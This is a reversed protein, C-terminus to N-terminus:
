GPLRRRASPPLRRASVTAAGRQGRPRGPRAAGAPAPAQDSRCGGPSYGDRSHGGPSYRGPPASFALLWAVNVGLSVVVCCCCVADVRNAVKVIDLPHPFIAIIAVAGYLVIASCYAIAVARGQAAKFVLGLIAVGGLAVIAYSTRWLHPNSPDVLSILTMIGPLSCYLGVGYARWVSNPDDKWDDYRMQVVVLWLSLIM